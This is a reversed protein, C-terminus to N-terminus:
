EEKLTDVPNAHAAKVTQSGVTLLALALIFILAAFLVWVRLPPRFAFNQLIASILFYAGPLAFFAAVLILKIYSKSLAYVVSSVNAGLVKRVGIEKVRVETTYTAMGLLGFLAILIVFGSVVTAIQLPGGLSADVEQQEDDFFALRVPHVKDFQNWAERLYTKIEEKRGPLYHINAYRFEGPSYHLVLPDIPNDPYSNYNFDGVVGIITARPNDETFLTKGLAEDSSRFGFARIGEENILVAKDVDSLVERSFNRGSIVRIGFNPTFDPDVVYYDAYTPNEMEGARVKWLWSGGYVPIENSFSIGTIAGADAIENRFTEYNVDGLYVSVVNETTMGRDITMWYRYLQYYYIIFVVSMLSVAFQIAMLIKRLRLHSFGKVRSHSRLADAPQFSSLYLAPYLGALLSVGAAFAIFLLYLGPDKMQSLNIQQRANQIVDMRNFAPILFLICLIAVILALFTIVFTESLFLRIIQSRKAGIVKRLGIERARRLSRAVSLIIYNFCALFIILLAVFPIFVIDFSHRTGPMGNSLNIGLNIKLLPQMGFGFRENEPAPFITDAIGPLQKHLVAPDEKHKLLVYTYYRNYSSWSNMNDRIIGKSELSPITSLSILAEFRFHSKRNMEELVGTVLFDGMNELRLTKNLPDANGFFRRAAEGSLVISYPNELARGPDGATLPYSFVQLFSPAAYMGEIPMATGTDMVNAAMRRVRVIEDVCSINSQLYPALSGPTTAWGKIESHRIDRDTTYVRVIREKNEHFTDSSKEEKVFIIIMLCVSISVALGLINIISFVAHKRLNRFTIKLYNSIM